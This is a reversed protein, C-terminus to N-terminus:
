ALGQASKETEFILMRFLKLVFGEADQDLIAALENFLAEASSRQQLKGIIHSVLAPEEMGLLEAVKKSVWQQLRPAIQAPAPPNPNPPCTFNPALCPCPSPSCHSSTGCRAPVARASGRVAPPWSCAGAGAVAVPPVAARHRRNRRCGCGCRCCGRVKGMDAMEWKIMYAWVGDKSTPITDM